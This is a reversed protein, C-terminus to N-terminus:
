GRAPLARRIEALATAYGSRLVATDSSYNVITAGMAIVDRVAEVSDVAMSVAKGHKRAAEALRRRHEDLM